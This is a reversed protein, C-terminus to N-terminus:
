DRFVREEEETVMERSDEDEEKFLIFRENQKADGCRQFWEAEQRM